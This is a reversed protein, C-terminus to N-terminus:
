NTCLGCLADHPNAAGSSIGPYSLCVGHAHASRSSSSFLTSTTPPQLLSSSNDVTWDQQRWTPVHPERLSPNVPKSGWAFYRVSVRSHQFSRGAHSPNDGRPPFFFLSRSLIQQPALPVTSSNFILLKHSVAGPSLFLSPLLMARLSCALRSLLHSLIPSTPIIFFPTTLSPESVRGGHLLSHQRVCHVTAFVRPCQVLTEAFYSSTTHFTLSLFIRIEM